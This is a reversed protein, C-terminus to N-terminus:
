VVKNLIYSLSLLIGFIMHLGITLANAPLLEKILNHNRRAIQIIKICMPLTLIVIITHIPMFKFIIGLLVWIYNFILFVYFIKIAKLKGLIVVLTNKGTKKDADYDPFENIYLILGVLIGIPISAILPEIAHTQAIVYYSGYVILPGCGIVTILEGLATYGLKLPEATYFYGIFFGSIGILLIFNGKTVANLYLGIAAALSFCILGATLVAGPTTGKNQIVRSGGNFPSHNLNIEDLKSRHDFYDNVLNTGSHVFIVGIATLVFNLLHFEGTINWAIVAGLVVSVVSATLFPARAALLWFKIKNL